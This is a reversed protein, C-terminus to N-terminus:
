FTLKRSNENHISREAARLKIVVRAYFVLSLLCTSTILGFYMSMSMFPAVFFLISEALSQYFKSMSYVQAIHDPIVLACIVTRSTNFSNDSMGLLLANILAIPISPEILISSEDTPSHTAPGPTALLALVMNTLFLLAGIILSPLQAFNKIHKSAVSIITGMLIEGTGFVMLYMAPLYVNGSLAKTFVLSAPYISVWWGTSLGILCFLPTLELARKDFFTDYIKKLQEVFGVREPKNSPAISNTVCRTPIFAFILNAVFCVALFAGYMLRLEIDTYQRFSRHSEVPITGNSVFTANLIDGSAEPTQATLAIVVGGVIMCSTALAWTLASNREITKRTSHETIYAGHGSYFMAYGIGITASTLYYPIFHVYQFSAIHLTFMLSGFLLTNKSGLLGLAWPSVISAFTFFVTCIGAGYYGSHAHITTPSRDHVSRLVPEVITLQSDYGMFMCMNG